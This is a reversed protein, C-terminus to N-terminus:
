LQIGARRLGLIMVGYSALMALISVGLAGYFGIGRRLLVPLVLFLVLSPLVLWFISGALASVKSVDRTDHYLWIMAMISTLPLSATLGGILSSRKSIESVAVVIAASILFKLVLQTM